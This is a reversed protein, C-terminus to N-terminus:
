VMDLGGLGGLGSVIVGLVMGLGYGGVPRVGHICSSRARVFCFVYLLAREGPQLGRM